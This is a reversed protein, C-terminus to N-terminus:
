SSKLLQFRLYRITGDAVLGKFRDLWFRIAGIDLDPMSPAALRGAGLALLKRKLELILAGLGWSEDCIETVQFGHARFIAAYSQEDVADALCTWPALVRAVDKPLPGGTAMDTIAFQGGPKLIRLTERLAASQDAFLSFTCEALAADFAGDEFPLSQADACLFQAAPRVGGFRAEAREVNLRSRDLASVRLGFEEALMRATTGTGCGLEVLRAGGPLKLAAVTKRTLEVGGPHFIDEALHRM